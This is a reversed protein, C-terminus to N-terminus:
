STKFADVMKFNAKIVMRGTKRKLTVDSVFREDRIRRGRRLYGRGGM